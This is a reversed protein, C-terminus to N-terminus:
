PKWDRFNVARVQLRPLAPRVTRAFWEDVYGREAAEEWSMGDPITVSKLLILHEAGFVVAARAAISDSTVSWRHPLAAHPHAREDWVALAHADLFFTRWIPIDSAFVDRKFDDPCGLVSITPLLLARLFWTNLRMAELALWHAREEGLRHVRDFHRVADATPGGGAVLLVDSGPTERFWALLWERFRPELDPLDYLSGGVKVVALSRTM